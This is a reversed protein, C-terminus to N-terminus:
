CGADIRDTDDLLGLFLGLTRRDMIQFEAQEGSRGSLAQLALIKLMM